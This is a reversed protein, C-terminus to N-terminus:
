NNLCYNKAITWTTSGLRHLHNGVMEILLSCLFSISTVSAAGRSWPWWCRPGYEYSCYVKWLDFILHQHNVLTDYQGLLVDLNLVYGNSRNWRYFRKIGDKRYALLIM